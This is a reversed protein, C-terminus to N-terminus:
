FHLRFSALLCCRLRLLSDREFIGVHQCSRRRSLLLEVDHTAFILLLEEVCIRKVDQVLLSTHTAEITMMELDLCSMLPAM